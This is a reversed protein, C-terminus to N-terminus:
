TTHEGMNSVRQFAPFALSPMQDMHNVARRTLTAFLAQKKIMQDTRLDNIPLDRAMRGRVAAGIAILEHHGAPIDPEDTTNVLTAPTYAFSMLAGKANTSGTVVAPYIRLHNHYFTFVSVNEANDKARQLVDPAVGTLTTPDWDTTAYANGGYDFSLELLQEMDGPLQYYEEDTTPATALKVFYLPMSQQIWNVVEFYAGNILATVEADTYMPAAASDPDTLFFRTQNMLNPTGSDLLM